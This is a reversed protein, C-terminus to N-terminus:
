VGVYKKQVVYTGFTYLEGNVFVIDHINQSEGSINKVNVVNMDTEQFKDFTDIFSSNSDINFVDMVIMANKRSPHNLFKRICMTKNVSKFFTNVIWEM